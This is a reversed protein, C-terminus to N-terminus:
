NYYYQRVETIGGLTDDDAKTINTITKLRSKEDYSFNSHSSSTGSSDITKIIQGKGNYYTILLSEGSIYSRSSMESQTYNKDIRKECFFGESPQGDDEFSKVIINKINENRLISFEKVLPQASWLDKYYYQASVSGTLCSISIILFLLYKRIM